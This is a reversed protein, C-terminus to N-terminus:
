PTMRLPTTLDWARRAADAAQILMRRRAGYEQLKRAQNIGETLTAPETTATPEPCDALLQILYAGGGVYKLQPDTLGDEVALIDVPKGLKWLRSITNFIVRNREIYFNDATLGLEPIIGPNVLLAALVIREGTECVPMEYM